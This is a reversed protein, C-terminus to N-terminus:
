HSGTSVLAGRVCVAGSVPARWRRGVSNADEMAYAGGSRYMGHQSNCFLIPEFGIRTRFKLNWTPFPTRMIWMTRKTRKALAQM